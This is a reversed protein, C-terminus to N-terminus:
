GAGHLEDVCKKNRCEEGAKSQSVGSLLVVRSMQLPLNSSLFCPCGMALASEIIASTGLGSTSQLSPTDLTTLQFSAFKALLQSLRATLPMGWLM